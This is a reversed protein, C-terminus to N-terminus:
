LTIVLDPNVPTWDVVSPDWYIINEGHAGALNITVNYTIKKNIGWGETSIDSLAIYETVNDTSFDTASTYTDVKYSFEIHPVAKVADIYAQTKKELAKEEETTGTFTYNVAAFTQPLFAKQENTLSFAATTVEQGKIAGNDYVAYEYSSPEAPNNWSETRTTADTTMQYDGKSFADVVKISNLTIVKSGKALTTGKYDAATKVNFGVIQTLTHRFITPVGAKAGATTTSNAVQGAKIDSVMFDLNKQADVDYDTVKLGDTADCTVNAPYSDSALTYSIFTLSGGKPWFYIQDAHWSNAAFTENGNADYAVEANDIYLSAGTPWASGSANYFAFTKFKYAKDFTNGSVLAKSSQSGVVTQWTIQANDDAVPRVENKSCASFAVLAAAAIILYNTKM